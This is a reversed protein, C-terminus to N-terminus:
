VKESEIRVVKYDLLINGSTQVKIDPNIRIKKKSRGQKIILKRKEAKALANRVSQSSGFIKKEVATECFDTLEREGSLALLTLCNLDLSSIQIDNLHCYVALQFRTISWVDMRIKKQVQNVIAM